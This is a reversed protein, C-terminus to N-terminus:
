VRFAVSYWFLSVIFWAILTLIHNSNVYQIRFQSVRNSYSLYQIISSVRNRIDQNKSSSVPDTHIWLSDTYNNLEVQGLEIFTGISEPTLPLFDRQEIDYVMRSSGIYDFAEQLDFVM